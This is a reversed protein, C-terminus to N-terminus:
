SSNKSFNTITKVQTLQLSCDIRKMINEAYNETVKKQVNWILDNTKIMYSKYFYSTMDTTKNIM